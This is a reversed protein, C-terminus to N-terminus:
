WDPGDLRLCAAAAAPDVRALRPLEGLLPAPIHRRLTDVNADARLCAPDLRNAVWGALPLGARQISEVTLLAHNLCGLRVAVVLVVPFGLAAALEAVTEREDLPVRWGGVGEVILTEVMAQVERVQAAIRAISIWTGAEAAALHPAIPPAFAYPNVTEYPLAVSAEAQLRLADDNRLAGGQETCGSAVPKMAAVRRGRAKFARVLGLSVVTKGVGTDTGTVFYGTSV